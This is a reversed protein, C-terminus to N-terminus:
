MAKKLFDEAEQPIGTAPPLSQVWNVYQHYYQNIIVMSRIFALRGSLCPMKQTLRAIRPKVSISSKTTIAMIAIRAPMSNGASDFTFSFDLCVLQEFLRRWIPIEMKM